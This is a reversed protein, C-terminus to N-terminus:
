TFWDKIKEPVSKNENAQEEKHHVICSQCALTNDKGEVPTLEVIFRGLPRPRGETSNCYACKRPKTDNKKQM